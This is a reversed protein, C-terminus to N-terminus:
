AAVHEWPTRVRRFLIEVTSLSRAQIFDRPGTGVFYSFSFISSKHIKGIERM